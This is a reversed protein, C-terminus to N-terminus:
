GAPLRLNELHDRVSIQGFFYGGQQADAPLGGLFVPLRQHVLQVDM